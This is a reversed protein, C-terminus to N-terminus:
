KAFEGEARDFITVGMMPDGMRYLLITSARSISSTRQRAGYNAGASYLSTTPFRQDNGRLGASRSKTEM